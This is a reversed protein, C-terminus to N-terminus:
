RSSLVDPELNGNPVHADLKDGVPGKSALLTIPLGRLGSRLLM